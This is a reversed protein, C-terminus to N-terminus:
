MGGAWTPQECWTREVVCHVAIETVVVFFMNSVTVVTVIVM